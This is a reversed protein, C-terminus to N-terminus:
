QIWSKYNPPLISYKTCRPPIKDARERNMTEVMTKVIEPHYVDDSDLFMVAQGTIADLGVNRAASVGANRQHFVRIRSDTAAYQDCIEGSGDQSGDDVILIELNHYSQGIVSELTERLYAQVNYVPIIVSVLDISGKGGEM